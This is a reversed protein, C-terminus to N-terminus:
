AFYDGVALQGVGGPTVGVLQIFVDATASFAKDADNVYLYTGMASGAKIEVLSAANAATGSFAATLSATLDDSEAVDALRVLETPQAVAGGSVSLLDIKDTGITFGTFIDMGALTSHSDADSAAASQLAAADTKDATAQAAFVNADAQEAATAVGDAALANADAQEAATAAGAAALADADAQEAVTAAGAAASADATLAASYDQYNSANILSMLTDAATIAAEDEPTLGDGPAAALAEEYNIFSTAGLLSDFTDAAAAADADARLSVADTADALTQAADADARLSAADTADALTQAAIVAADDAAAQDALAQKDQGLQVVVKSPHATVNIDDAGVGSEIVTVTPTVPTGGGGTSPTAATVADGALLAPNDLAASDTAAKTVTNSVSNLLASLDTTGGAQNAVATLYTALDGVEGPAKTNLNIISDFTKSLLTMLAPTVDAATAPVLKIVAQAAALTDPNSNVSAVVQAALTLDNLGKDAFVVGATAKNSLTAADLVGQASSNAKAGNIVAALFVDRGVSNNTLQDQWYALGEADPSRGLTAQYIQTIFDTDTLAVPYKALGEAQESMWNKSIDELSLAGKDFQDVWYALGASDPARNFFSVYLEALSTQTITM